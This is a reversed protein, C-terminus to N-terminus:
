GRIPCSLVPHSLAQFAAEQAVWEVSTPTNPCPAAGAAAEIVKRVQICGAAWDALNACGECGSICFYCPLTSSYVWVFDPRYTRVLERGLSFVPLGGAVPDILM